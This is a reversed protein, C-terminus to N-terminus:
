DLPKDYTFRWNLDLSTQPEKIKPPQQTSQPRGAAKEINAVVATASAPTAVKAAQFALVRGATGALTGATPTAFYAYLGATIILVAITVAVVIL